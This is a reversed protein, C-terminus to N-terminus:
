DEEEYAPPMEVEKEELKELKESELEEMIKEQREKMHEESHKKEIAFVKEHVKRAIKKENFAKRINERKETLHKKLHNYLDLSKEKGEGVLETGRKRLDTERLALVQKRVFELSDTGLEKLAEKNMRIVVKDKYLVMTAEKLSSFRERAQEALAKFDVEKLQAPIQILVDKGRVLLEVSPAVWQTKLHEYFLEALIRVDEVKELGQLKEKLQQLAKLINEKNFNKSKLEEYIKGLLSVMLANSKKLLAQVRPKIAKNESSQVLIKDEPLALTSYLGNVQEEANTLFKDSLVLVRERTAQFKELVNLDLKNPVYTKAIELKGNFFQSYQQM